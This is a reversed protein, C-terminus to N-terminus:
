SRSQIFDEMGVRLPNLNENPFKGIGNKFLSFWFRYLAKSDVNDLSLTSPNNVHSFASDFMVSEWANIQNVGCEDPLAASGTCVNGNDYVNMLPAHYLRTKTNVRGGNKLAAVALKGKCNAVMLLRPWPVNIKKLPMLKMKFLMPRVQASTTWAIHTESISVVNSPLLSIKRNSLELMSQLINKVDNKSMLQGAGIVSQGKANNVFEHMSALFNDNRYNSYSGDNSLANSQHIIIAYQQAITIQEGINFNFFNDSRM